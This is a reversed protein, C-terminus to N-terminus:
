DGDGLIQELWHMMHIVLWLSVASVAVAAFVALLMAMFDVFARIM